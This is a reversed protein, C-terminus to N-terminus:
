ELVATIVGAGVTRGGDRIAFRLGTELATPTVLEITMNVNDGPMAMAVDGSFTIAGTVIMTRMFLSPQYGSFFPKHRGGEEERLVYVEAQFRTHQKVSGPKALVHGRKIEGKNAGRLLCGVDDGAQAQDLFKDFMEISTVVFTKGEDGLGVVEVSDGTHLTGREIKGAIVVGRGKINYEEDVAMLFPKEVEREPIPIHTDITNLLNLIPGCNPCDDNGCGCERALLASGRVIPVDEPLYEYQELIDGLELAVLEILEEDDMLDVKNLFVVIRPVNVQRALIIHERTQPMPGEAVDVVLIAGDMQAAGTIMNKVYDAHGPCDIHSYHRNETEYEIHSAPVTLVKESGPRAFGGTSIEQYTKETTLGRGALVKTIAATLMTKGHDVHGITGVNVHPKTREYREKSM